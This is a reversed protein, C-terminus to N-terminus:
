DGMGTSGPGRRDKGRQFRRRSVRTYTCRNPKRREPRADSLRHGVGFSGSLPPTAQTTNPKAGFTHWRSTQDDSDLGVRVELATADTAPYLNRWEIRRAVPTPFAERVRQALEVIVLAREWSVTDIVAEDGGNNTLTTDIGQLFTYDSAREVYTKLLPLPSEDGASPDEGLAQYLMRRWGEAERLNALVRRRAAYVKARHATALMGYIRQWQKPTMEAELDPAAAMVYAFTEASMYFYRELAALADDYAEVGAIAEPWAFSQGLAATFNAGYDSPDAPDLRYARDERSRQGAHELLRVVEAWDADSRRKLEMMAEFSKAETFFLRERIFTAVDSEVNDVSAWAATELLHQTYLNDISEVEPLGAFYAADATAGLAKDLNARFDRPDNPSLSWGPDGTRQRGAIELYTNIAVWDDGAGDRRRKLQALARVEYLELHLKKAAFGVFTRLDILRPLDVPAGEFAPLSDGPKPDGLAYAFMRLFRDPANTEPDRRERAERIGTVRQDVYLTRLQAIEARNVLVDHDTRYVRDVGSADKDATFETGAPIRVADVGRAPRLVLSVQDPRPPKHEMRLVDTFFFDLHRRTLAAMHEQAVGVLHLFTLLLAFHPRRFRAAETDSVATPDAMFAAVRELDVDDGLLGSWDFDALPLAPDAFRLTKCLRRVFELWDQPRREDVAVHDPDLAKLARASQSTGDRIRHQPDPLIM